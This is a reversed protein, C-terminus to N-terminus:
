MRVSWGVDLRAGSVLLGSDVLARLLHLDVGADDGLLEVVTGALLLGTRASAWPSVGEARFTPSWPVHLCRSIGSQM